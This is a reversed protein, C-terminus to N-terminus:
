TEGASPQTAAAPPCLIKRFDEHIRPLDDVLPMRRKMQTSM